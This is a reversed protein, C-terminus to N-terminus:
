TRLSLPIEKLAVTLRAGAEAAKSM